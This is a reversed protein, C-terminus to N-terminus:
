EIKKKLRAYPIIAEAISEIGGLNVGRLYKIYGNEGWKKGWSNQLLWYKIMKGNKGKEEGYGVLTMSHDVKYWEPNTMKNKTKNDDGTFIGSKYMMFSYPPEFSLTLPGNDVLDRMINEETSGNYFGGIYYYDKVQLELDKLKGKCENGGDCGKFCEKPLIQFYKFFKGVLYM